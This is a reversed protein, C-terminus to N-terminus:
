LLGKEGILINELKIDM